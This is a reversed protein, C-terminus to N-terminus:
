GQLKSPFDSKCPSIQFNDEYLNYNSGFDMLLVKIKPHDKLLDYKKVKM